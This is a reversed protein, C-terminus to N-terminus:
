KLQIAKITEKKLPHTFKYKPSIYTEVVIEAGTGWGRVTSRESISDVQWRSNDDLTVFEALSELRKITHKGTTM